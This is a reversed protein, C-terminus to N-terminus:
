ESKRLDSGASLYEGNANARAVRALRNVLTAAIADRM